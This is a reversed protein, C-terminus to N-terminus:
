LSDALRHVADVAQELGGARRRIGIFPMVHDLVRGIAIHHARGDGLAADAADPQRLCAARGAHEGDDGCLGSALQALALHVSRRQQCAGLHGVVVLGHGQHHRFGELLRASGRL